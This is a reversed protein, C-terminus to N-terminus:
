FTDFADEFVEQFESSFGLVVILISLVIVLVVFVINIIIGAWALGKGKNGPINKSNVLGVISLILGIINFSGCCLITSILTVVFGATAVGNSTTTVPAQYGPTSYSTPQVPAAELKAGCGTCFAETGQTEKGCNTCFRSM